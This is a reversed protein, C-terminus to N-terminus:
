VLMNDKEIKKMMEIQQKSSFQFYILTSDLSKHGLWYNLEKIDLGSEALHVACSHKLTHFHWKTKDQIKVQECYRKMLVDLMKRSIPKGEQSTFIFKDKNKVSNIHRRLANKTNKDLKLTNNLSGKLRKCYIESRSNNYNDFTLLGIESARLGAYYALRFISYNRIRHKEKSEQIVKFIRRLEDQTFYKISEM